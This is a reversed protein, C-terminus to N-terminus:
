DSAFSVVVAKKIHAYGFFFFSLPLPFIYRPPHPINSLFWLLICVFHWWIIRPSSSSSSSALPTAKAPSAWDAPHYTTYYKKAKKRHTIYQKKQSVWVALARSDVPVFWVFAWLGFWFLEIPRCTYRRSINGQDFSLGAIARTTKTTHYKKSTPQNESRPATM